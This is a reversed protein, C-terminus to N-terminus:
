GKFLLTVSTVLLVGLGRWVGTLGLGVNSRVGDCDMVFNMFVRVYLHM